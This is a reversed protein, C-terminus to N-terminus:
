KEMGGLLIKLEEHIKVLREALADEEESGAKSSFDKILQDLEKLNKAERFFNLYLNVVKTRLHYGVYLKAIRRLNDKVLYTIEM